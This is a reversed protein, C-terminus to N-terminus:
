SPNALTDIIISHDPTTIKIIRGNPRHVITGVPLDHIYKFLWTQTVYDVAAVDPYQVKISAREPVPFSYRHRAARTKTTM